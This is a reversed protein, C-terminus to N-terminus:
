FGAGIWLNRDACMSLPNSLIEEGKENESFWKQEWSHGM